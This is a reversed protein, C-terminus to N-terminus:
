ESGETAGAPEEGEQARPAAGMLDALWLSGESSGLVLQQVAMTMPVAILAGIPGLV